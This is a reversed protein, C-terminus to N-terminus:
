PSFFILFKLLANKQFLYIHFGSSICFFLDLDVSSTLPSSLSSFYVNNLTLDSRHHPGEVTKREREIKRQTPSSFSSVPRPRKSEPLVPPFHGSTAPPFAAEALPIWTCSQCRHPLLNGRDGGQEGKKKM